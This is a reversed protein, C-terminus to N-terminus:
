KANENKKTCRKVFWKCGIEVKMQRSIIDSIYDSTNAGTALACWSRVFVKVATASSNQLPHLITELLKGDM